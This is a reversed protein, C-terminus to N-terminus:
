SSEEVALARLRAKGAHIRVGVNDVSIGLSEAISKYSAGALRLVVVQAIGEPLRSLAARLWTRQEAALIAAELDFASPLQLEPRTEPRRRRVLSVARNRAVCLVYTRLCSEGRFRPLARWVALKMEQLLDDREVNAGAFRGAMRELAPGYEAEISEFSPAQEFRGEPHTACLSPAARLRVGRYQTPEYSGLISCIRELEAALPKAVEVLSESRLLFKRVRAPDIGLEAFLEEDASAAKEAGIAWEWLEHLVQTERLWTSGGAEAQGFERRVYHRLEDLARQTDRAFTALSSALHDFGGTTAPRDLAAMTLRRGLRRWGRLLARGLSRGSHTLMLLLVPTVVVMTLAVALLALYADFM